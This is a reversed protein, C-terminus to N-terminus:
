DELKEFQVLGGLVYYALDRKLVLGGNPSYDWAELVEDVTGVFNRDKWDSLKRNWRDPPRKSGDSAQVRNGPQFQSYHQRM